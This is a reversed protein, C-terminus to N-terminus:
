SAPAPADIGARARLSKGTGRDWPGSTSAAPPTGRSRGSAGSAGITATARSSSDHSDPDTVTAHMENAEPDYRGALSVGVPSVGSGTVRGEKFALSVDVRDRRGNWEIYFGTWPGSAFEDEVAELGVHM